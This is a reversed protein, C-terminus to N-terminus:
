CFFTIILFLITTTHINIMASAIIPPSTFAVDISKDPITNMLDLCDGREIYDIKIVEELENM